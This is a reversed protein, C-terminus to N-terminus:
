SKIKQCLKEELIKSAEERTAAEFPKVVQVVFPNGICDSTYDEHDGFWRKIQVTGNQHLYGWFMKKM